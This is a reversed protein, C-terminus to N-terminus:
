HSLWPWCIGVSCMKNRHFFVSHGDLPMIELVLDNSRLFTLSLLSQRLTFLNHYLWIISNYVSMLFSKLSSIELVQLNQPYSM